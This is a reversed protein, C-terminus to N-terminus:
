GSVEINHCYQLSAERSQTSTHATRQHHQSVQLHQLDDEQVNQSLNYVQFVCVFLCLCWGAAMVSNVWLVRVNMRSVFLRGVQVSSTMTSLAFLTACDKITSQSDFAGQTDILLVAVQLLLLLTMMWRAGVVFLHQTNALIVGFVCSAYSSPTFLESPTIRYVLRAATQNRWWSCRAGPWSARPRGRVAAEGPSAPWLSRRGASGRGLRSSPSM